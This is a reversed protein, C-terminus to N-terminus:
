NATQAGNEKGKGIERNMQINIVEKVNPVHEFYRNIMEFWHKHDDVKRGIADVEDVDKLYIFISSKGNLSIVRNIEFTDKDLKMEDELYEKVIELPVKEGIYKIAIFAFNTDQELNM